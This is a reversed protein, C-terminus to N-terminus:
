RLGYNAPPLWRHTGQRGSFSGWRFGQDTFWKLIDQPLRDYEYKWKDYVDQSVKTYRTDQPAQAQRAGFGGLRSGGLRAPPAGPIPQAAPATATPGLAKAAQEQGYAVRYAKFKWMDPDVGQPVPPVEEAELAEFFDKFSLIM